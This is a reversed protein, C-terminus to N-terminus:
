EGDLAKFRPANMQWHDRQWRPKGSFAVRQGYRFQRAMWAQNFWSGEVCRGRDDAIVISLINRGDGLEKGNIEVVEGQVTQLVGAELQDVRRVDSLDDYSRPFHLVLDGVTHVGLRALLEARASGVGKLFQVREQLPTTTSESVVM